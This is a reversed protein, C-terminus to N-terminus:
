APGGTAGPVAALAQEAREFFAATRARSYGNREPSIRFTVVNETKIGLNERSVNVLSRIFLGASVLLAMSLAVQATALSSRFRAAARAGSLVQGASSRITKILDPRTS